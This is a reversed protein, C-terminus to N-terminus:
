KKERVDYAQMADHYRLYLRGDLLVPHAWADQVRAETLRLEGLVKFGEELPSVLAMRGDEGLCYLRGDAAVGSGTRLDPLTGRTEGTSWDVAVWHRVKQYGGAYLLGGVSLFSGSCTDLPTPWAREVRAGDDLLTYCAATFYPTAFHVRGGGWAPTSANVDYPTTMPVTWLLKGTDADVGFGQKSACSLLLRRAGQRVLLPSAYNATAGEIPESTWVTAGSTKDLAAMLAKRGGPTVILRPGDVLLCESTAWTINAADFRELIDVAWREKGTAAELCAVRGHGNLHYLLGESYVPCARAGPYSGKWAAGNRTQWLPRGDLDFARIVCDEGVDGTVFLRGEVVIPSSWGKGLGAVAWLRPPGGEPWTKLLGKESVVGDRRPGRWQPWGPEPSAIPGDSAAQFALLLLATTTM